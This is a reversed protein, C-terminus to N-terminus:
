VQPQGIPVGFSQGDDGCACIRLGNDIVIVLWIPLYSGFMYVGGQGMPDNAGSELELVPRLNHKLHLGKGRLISFVSASDTSSMNSALLSLM